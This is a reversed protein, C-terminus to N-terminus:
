EGVMFLNSQRDWICFVERINTWIDYTSHHLDSEINLHKHKNTDQTAFLTNSYHSLLNSYLHINLSLQILNATRWDFNSSYKFNMWIPEM